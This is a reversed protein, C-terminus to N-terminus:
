VRLKAIEFDPELGKAFTGRSEYLAHQCTHVPSVESATVFSFFELDDDAGWKGSEEYLVPKKRARPFATLVHPEITTLFEGRLIHVHIPQILGCEGKGASVKVTSARVYRHVCRDRRIISFLDM